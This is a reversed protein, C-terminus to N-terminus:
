ATLVAALDVRFSGHLLPDRVWLTLTEADRIDGNEVAWETGHSYAFSGIPLAPSVWNLLRLLRMPSLERQKTVTQDRNLSRLPADPLITIIVTRPAPFPM